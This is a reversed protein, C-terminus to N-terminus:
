LLKQDKFSYYGKETIILHDCVETDLLRGAEVLKETLRLDAKSPEINGSPHNHVLIISSALLQITKNFIIKVDVVTSSVGGKFLKEDKIVQNRRNLYIIHMEEHKLDQLKPYIYSYADHSCSIIPKSGSTIANRRRGLELGAMLSIAKAPGIGKFKTFDHLELLGLKNLNNDVSKLIRQALSVASEDKSGSGLLIAILESNSLANRGKLILKERPRDEESWSKISIHDGAM